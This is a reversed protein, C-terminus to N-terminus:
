TPGSSTRGSASSSTPTTAACAAPWSGPSRSATASCGTSCRRAGAGGGASRGGAGGRVHGARQRPAVGRPTDGPPRHAPERPRPGRDLAALLADRRQGAPVAHDVGRGGPPLPRRLRQGRRPHRAAAGLDAAGVDAPRRTARHAGGGPPGPGGGAGPLPRGLLALGGDPVAPDAREHAAGPGDPLDPGGRDLHGEVRRGALLEGRLLGTAAGGPDARRRHRLQLRGAAHLPAPGRLATRPRGRVRDPLVVAGRGAPGGLGAPNARLRERYRDLSARDAQPGILIGKGGSENAPKVVMRDLNAVVHSLQAPDECRFTPVNPLIPEEDLYYRILDPVYTYVVKDDAVGTGPANALALNGARWARTLGAVGLVSDPNFAEPDLFWDDIRRYIADVRVPGEITCVYCVDDSDVFLDQNEVLEVGMQRALFSHEFYASNYVGPTLVVARGDGGPCLSLLTELLREPYRDVPRISQREFLEAFVRKTVARNELMYSVGSPVRLNDELVYVTGDPTACWTRAACTRGSATPRTPGTASPAGAPHRSSSPAPVIGDRLCRQGHYLDDIFCNLGALRQRLGADIRSWERAAFVRPVIDMPWARDINAGDAYVTFTIGQAAIDAEAARQRARLDGFSLQGLADLLAESGGRARRDPGLLEDHGRTEYGSLAHRIATDRVPDSSSLAAVSAPLATVPM